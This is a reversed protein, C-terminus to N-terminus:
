RPDTCDQGSNECSRSYSYQNTRFGFAILQYDSAQLILFALALLLVFPLSTLRRSGARKLRNM